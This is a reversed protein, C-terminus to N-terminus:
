RLSFVVIFRVIETNRAAAMQVAASPRVAQPVLGASDVVVVGSLLEVTVSVASVASSAFWIALGMVWRALRSSTFSTMPEAM